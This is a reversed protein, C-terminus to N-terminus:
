IHILSLYLELGSKSKLEDWSYALIIKKERNRAEQELTLEEGTELTIGEAFKYDVGTEKAMKLFLIYTLEIVYQHYTIGDDRLVHCLNWLRSVIEQTTM